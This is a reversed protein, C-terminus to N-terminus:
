EAEEREPEEEDAVKNIAREEYFAPNTCYELLHVATRPPPGTFLWSMGRVTPRGYGLRIYCVNVSSFVVRDFTPDVHYVLDTLDQHYEMVSKIGALVNSPLSMTSIQFLNSGFVNIGLTYGWQGVFFIGLAASLRVYGDQGHKNTVPVKLNYVSKAATRSTSTLSFFKPLTTIGRTLVVQNSPHLLPVVRDVYDDLIAEKWVMMQLEDVMEGFKHFHDLTAMELYSPIMLFSNDPKLARHIGGRSPMNAFYPDMTKDRKLLVCALVILSYNRLRWGMQEKYSSGDLTGKPAPIQQWYPLAVYLGAKTGRLKQEPEPKVPRQSRRIASVRQVAVERLDVRYSKKATQNAAAKYSSGGATGLAMPITKDPNTYYGLFDFPTYPGGGIQAAFSHTTPDKRDVKIFSLKAFTYVTQEYRPVTIRKPSNLVQHEKVQTIKALEEPCIRSVFQPFLGYFTLGLTFQLRGVLFIDLRTSLRITRLSNNEVVLQEADYISFQLRKTRDSLLALKTSNIVPVVRGVHEEETADQHIEIQIEKPPKLM